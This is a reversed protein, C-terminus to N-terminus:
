VNREMFAQYSNDCKMALTNGDMELMWSWRKESSLRRARLEAVARAIGVKSDRRSGGFLGRSTAVLFRYIRESTKLLRIKKSTQGISVQSGISIM